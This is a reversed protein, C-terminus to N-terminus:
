NCVRAVRSVDPSSAVRELTLFLILPTPLTFRSNYIYLTPFRPRTSNRLSTRFRSSIGRILNANVNQRWAFYGNQDHLRTQFRHESTTSASQIQIINLSVFKGSQGHSKDDHIYIFSLLFLLHIRQQVCHTSISTASTDIRDPVKIQTYILNIFPHLDICHQEIFYIYIYISNLTWQFEIQPKIIWYKALLAVVEYNTGIQKEEDEFIKHVSVIIIFYIWETLDDYM